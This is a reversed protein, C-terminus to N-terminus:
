DVQVMKLVKFGNETVRYLDKTELVRKIIGIDILDDIFEETKELAEYYEVHEILYKLFIFKKEYGEEKLCKLLDALYGNAWVHNNEAGIEKEPYYRRLVNVFTRLNEDEM